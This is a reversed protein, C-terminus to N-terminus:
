LSKTFQDNPFLRKIIVKAEDKSLGHKDDMKTALHIYFQSAGGGIEKQCIKCLM